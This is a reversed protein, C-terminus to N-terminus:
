KILTSAVVSIICYLVANILAAPLGMHMSKIVCM